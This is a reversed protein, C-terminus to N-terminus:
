VDLKKEKMVQVCIWLGSETASSFVTKNESIDSLLYYKITSNHDKIKHKEKSQNLLQSISPQLRVTPLTVTSSDLKRPRVLGTLITLVHSLWSILRGSSSYMWFHLLFFTAFILPMFVPSYWVILVILKNLNYLSASIPKWLWNDKPQFDALIESM